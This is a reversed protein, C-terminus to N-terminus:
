PKPQPHTLATLPCVEMCNFIMINQTSGKQRGNGLDGAETQGNAPVNERSSSGAHAGV